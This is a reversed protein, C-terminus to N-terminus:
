LIVCKDKDKSEKKAKREGGASQKGPSATAGGGAAAGGSGAAAARRDAEDRESPEQQGQPVSLVPADPSFLAHSFTLVVQSESSLLLFCFLPVSGFGTLHSM